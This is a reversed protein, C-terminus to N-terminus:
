AEKVLLGHRIFVLKGGGKTNRDKRFPPFQYGGIKFQADPFSSDLKTEDICLIDIPAKKINWM